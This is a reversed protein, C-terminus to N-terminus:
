ASIEGKDSEFRFGLRKGTKLSMSSTYQVIEAVSIEKVLDFAPTLLDFDICYLVANELISKIKDSDISDTVFNNYLFGLQRKGEVFFHKDKNIFIRGVLYGVDNMRSYKFSDALFNYIYIVGCYSRSPDEKVYSTKMVAHDRSFEHVNTHMTILLLDSAIKLEATFEGKERFSCSMNKNIKNVEPKMQAHLAKASKKFEKFVSMTNEYVQFKVSSKEVLKSLINNQPNEESM